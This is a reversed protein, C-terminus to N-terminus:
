LVFFYVAAGAGAGVVLLIVISLVWIWGSKKKPSKLLAKHYDNTDYIAGTTQDGSSPQEKYQQTISTPGAPQNDAVPTAPASPTVPAASPTATTVSMDADADVIPLTETPASSMAPRTTSDSEISLLDKDLEAPMPTILSTPPTDTTKEPEPVSEDSFAGLPRKDVKTGAIFPTDPSESSKETLSKTIDNNIQDIDADENEEKVPESTKDASNNSPLDIPDPWSKDAPAPTPPTGILEAMVPLEHIVPPNITASERSVSEPMTPTVKTNASPPVVDMFRGTSRQVTSSPDASNTSKDGALSNVARDIEDFDLDKM